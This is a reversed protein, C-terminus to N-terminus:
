CIFVYLNGYYKKKKIPSKKMTATSLPHQDTLGIAVIAIWVFWLVHLLEEQTYSKRCPNIMKLISLNYSASIHSLTSWRPVVTANM